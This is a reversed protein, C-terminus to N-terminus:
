EFRRASVAKRYENRAGSSNHVQRLIGLAKGIDLEDDVVAAGNEIRGRGPWL